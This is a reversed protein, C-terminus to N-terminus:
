SISSQLAARDYLDRCEQTLTHSRREPVQWFHAYDPRSIADAIQQWVLPNSHSAASVMTQWEDACLSRQDYLERLAKLQHRLKKQQNIKKQYISFAIALSGVSAFIGAAIGLATRANEQADARGAAIEDICLMAMLAMSKVIKEKM